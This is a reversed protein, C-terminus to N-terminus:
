DAYSAYNVEFNLFYINTYDCFPCVFEYFQVKEDIKPTIKFRKFCSRCITYRKIMSTCLEGM